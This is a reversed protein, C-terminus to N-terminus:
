TDEHVYTPFLTQARLIDESYRALKKTPAISACSGRSGASFLRHLPQLVRLLVDHIHANHAPKENLRRVEQAALFTCPTRDRGAPAPSISDVDESTTKRTLESKLRAQESNADSKSRRLTEQYAQGQEDLARARTVAADEMRSELLANSRKTEHAREIQNQEMQKIFAQRMQNREATSEANQKDLVKAFFQGKERLNQDNLRNYYSDVEAEKEKMSSIQKDYAEATEKQKMRWLNEYEKIADTRGQGIEKGYDRQHELLENTKRRLSQNEEERSRRANEALQTAQDGYAEAQKKFRDNENNEMERVKRDYVEKTADLTDTFKKKM